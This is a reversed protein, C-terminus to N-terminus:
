KTPQSRPKRLINQVADIFDDPRHSEHVLVNQELLEPEGRRHLQLVPVRCHMKATAWVRRKESPPLSHGIMILRVHSNSCAEAITSADNAAIVVYGAKELTTRRVDALKPDRSVVVIKDQFRHERQPM